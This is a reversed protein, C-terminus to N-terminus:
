KGAGAPSDTGPLAGPPSPFAHDALVASFRPRIQEAVRRKVFVAEGVPIGHYLGEYESLRSCVVLGRGGYTGRFEIIKKVCNARHQQPVEDLGDLVPVIHGHALLSRGLSRPCSHCRSLDDTLWELLPKQDCAWSSLRFIVMAPM